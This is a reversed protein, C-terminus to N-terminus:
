EDEHARGARVAAVIGRVAQGDSLEAADVLSMAARALKLAELVADAELADTSFFRVAHLAARVRRDPPKM